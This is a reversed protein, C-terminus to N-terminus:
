RGEGAEDVTALSEPEDVFQLRQDLLSITFVRHVAPPGPVIVLRGGQQRFRADASLITRLGTSDIFTLERLDVVLTSPQQREIKTLERDVDPATSIDLEGALAVLPIEGVKRTRVSMIRM